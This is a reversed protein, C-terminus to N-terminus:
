SKEENIIKRAAALKLLESTCWANANGPNDELDTCDDGDDDSSRESYPCDIRLDVWCSFPCMM